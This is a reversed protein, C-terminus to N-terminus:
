LPKAAITTTDRRRKSRKKKAPIFPYDLSFSKGIASCYTSVERVSYLGHAYNSLSEPILYNM